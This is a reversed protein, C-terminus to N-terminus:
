RVLRVEVRRDKPWQEPDASAEGAGASEVTVRGADIGHQVLYDKVRQARALGLRDNYAATGRPDTRGVVEIRWGKLPGSAMCDALTQMSPQDIALPASSDFDFLPAAGSCTKWLPDAVFLHYSGQEEVRPAGTGLDPPRPAQVSTLEAEPSKPPPSACALAAAGVLAGARSVLRHRNM